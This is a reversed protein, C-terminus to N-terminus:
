TGPAPPWRSGCRRPTRWTAVPLSASATRSSPAARRDHDRQRGQLIDDVAGADRRLDLHQQGGPRPGPLQCDAGQQGPHAQGLGIVPGGVEGAHVLGQDAQGLVVPPPEAHGRVPLV